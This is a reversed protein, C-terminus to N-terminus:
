SNRHTGVGLAREAVGNLESCKANTFEQKICYNGAIEMFFKAGNGSRVIGVKSPVGDARM